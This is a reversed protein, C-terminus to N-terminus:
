PFPGSKSVKNQSWNRAKTKSTPFSFYLRASHMQLDERVLKLLVAAANTPSEPLNLKRGMKLLVRLFGRQEPQLELSGHFRCSSDPCPVADM